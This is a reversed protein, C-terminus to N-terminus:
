VCVGASPVGSCFRLSRYWCNVRARAHASACCSIPTSSTSSTVYRRNVRGSGSSSSASGPGSHGDEIRIEGLCRISSAFQPRDPFAQFAIFDLTGPTRLEGDEIRGRPPFSNLVGLHPTRFLSILPAPPFRRPKSKPRPHPRVVPFLRHKACSRMARRAVSISRLFVSTRKKCNASTPQHM